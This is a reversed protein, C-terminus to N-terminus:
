KYISNVFKNIIDAIKKIFNSEITLVITLLTIVATLIIMLCQLRLNIFSIITNLKDRSANILLQSKKELFQMMNEARKIEENVDDIIRESILFGKHFHKENEEVKISNINNFIINQHNHVLPLENLLSVYYHNFHGVYNLLKKQLKSIEIFKNIKNINSIDYNNLDSQGMQRNRYTLLHYCAYQKIINFMEMPMFINNDEIKEKCKYFNVIIQCNWFDSFIPHLILCHNLLLWLNDHCNLENIFMSIINKIDHLENANESNLLTDAIPEFYIFMPNKVVSNLKRENITNNFITNINMGFLNNNILYWLMDKKIDSLSLKLNNIALFLEMINPLTILGFSIVLRKELFNPPVHIFIKEFGCIESKSELFDCRSYGTPTDFFHFFLHMDTECPFHIRINDFSPKKDLVDLLVLWVKYNDFNIQVSM